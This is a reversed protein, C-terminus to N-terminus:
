WSRISETHSFFFTILSCVKMEKEVSENTEAIYRRKFEEDPSFPVCVFKPIIDWENYSVIIEVTAIRCKEHPQIIM